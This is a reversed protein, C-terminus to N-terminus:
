IAEKSPSIGEVELVLAGGRLPCQEPVIAVNVIQAGGKPHHCVPDLHDADKTLDDPTEHHLLPCTWCSTIIM